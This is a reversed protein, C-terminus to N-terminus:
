GFCLSIKEVSICECLFVHKYILLFQLLVLKFVTHPHINTLDDPKKCCASRCIVCIVYIVHLEHQLLNNSNTFIQQTLKSQCADATLAVQVDGLVQEDETSPLIRNLM